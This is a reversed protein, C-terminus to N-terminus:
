TVWELSIGPNKATFDDTLKQMRIMDGNNVTAITLKTDALAPGSWVASALTAVAFAGSGAGPEVLAFETPRGLREWCELIQRAWLYGFVPHVEPSTEFDGAAGWALDPRSYYGHEPHGLALSMFRAFTMPGREAIEAAIVPTLPTARNALAFDDHAPTTGPADFSRNM